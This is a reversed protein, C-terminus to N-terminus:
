RCFAEGDKQDRDPVSLHLHTILWDHGTGRLVFTARMVIISTREDKDARITSGCAVWAVTGEGFIHVDSFEISVKDCQAMDRALFKRYEDIGIAKEDAGTGFGTISPDILSLVKDKDKRNYYLAFRDLTDQVQIRTQQSTTMDNQSIIQYLIYGTVNLGLFTFHPCNFSHNLALVWGSDGAGGLAGIFCIHEEASGCKLVRKYNFPRGTM